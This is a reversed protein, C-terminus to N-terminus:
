TAATGGARAARHMSQWRTHSRPRWAVTSCTPSSESPSPTRCWAPSHTLPACARPTTSTPWAPMWRAAFCAPFALVNNVQNPHDSRGTAVVAAGAARAQEPDVESDPNALALVIADDAMAHVDDLAFAGPTALGVVAAAGAIVDAVEGEGDLGLDDVLM